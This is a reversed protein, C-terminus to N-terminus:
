LEVKDKFTIIGYFPFFSGDRYIEYKLVNQKTKYISMIDPNYANGINHSYVGIKKYTKPPDSLSKGKGLTAEIWEGKIRIKIEM